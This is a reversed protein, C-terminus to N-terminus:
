EQLRLQKEKNVIQVSQMAFMTELLKKMTANMHQRVSKDEQKNQQRQAAVPIYIV